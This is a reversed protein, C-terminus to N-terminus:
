DQKVHCKLYYKNKPAQNLHEPVGPLLFSFFPLFSVYLPGSLVSFDFLFTLSVFFRTIYYYNKSYEGSFSVYSSNFPVTSVKKFSYLTDM